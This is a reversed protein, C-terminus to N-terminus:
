ARKARAAAAVQDRTLGLEATEEVTYEALVGNAIHPNMFMTATKALGVREAQVIATFDPQGEQHVTVKYNNM